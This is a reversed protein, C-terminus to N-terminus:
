GVDEVTLGWCQSLAHLFGKDAARWDCPLRVTFIPQADASDTHEACDAVLRMAAVVLKVDGYCTPMM